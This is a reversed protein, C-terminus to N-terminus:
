EELPKLLAELESEEVGKEVIDEEVKTEVKVFQGGEEQRKRDVEEKWKATVGKAKNSLKDLTKLYHEIGVEPTLAVYGGPYVKLLLPYSSPAVRPKALYNIGTEPDPHELFFAVPNNRVSQINTGEETTVESFKHLHLCDGLWQPCETTVATGAIQPGYKTITNKAEGKGVLGTWVVVKLNPMRVAEKDLTNPLSRLTQMMEYIFTQIAGYHSQSIGGFIEGDEEYTWSRGQSGMGPANRSIHLKFATSFSTTGEAVYCGIKKAEEASIPSMRRVRQGSENVVVQPWWGRILKRADALIHKRGTIDLVKVIGLEELGADQVPKYGGGDATIWRTLLGYKEYIWKAIFMAQTTKTSGSEGYLMITDAPM